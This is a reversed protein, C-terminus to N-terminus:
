SKNLQLRNKEGDSIQMKRVTHGRKGGGERSRHTWLGCPTQASASTAEWARENKFSSCGIRIHSKGGFCPSHTRRPAGQKKSPHIELLLVLQEDVSPLRSLLERLFKKWNAHLWQAQKWSPTPPPNAEKRPCFHGEQTTPGPESGMQYKLPGRRYNGTNSCIKGIKKFYKSTQKNKLLLSDFHIM